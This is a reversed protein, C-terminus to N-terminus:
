LHLFGSYGYGPNGAVDYAVADVSYGRAPLNTATYSWTVSNSTGCGTCTAEQYNVYTTNMSDRVWILIRGVKRSDSAHGTITVAEGPLYIHPIPGFTNAPSDVFSTPAVADVEFTRAPSLSSPNGNVTADAKITHFGANFSQSFTWTGSPASVTRLLVAGEYVRVTAGAAASGSVTASYPQLSNEAPSVIGPPLVLSPTWSGENSLAGNGLANLGRVQYRYQTGNSVATDQYTSAASGLSAVVSKSGTGVGKLVEYGLLISGNAGAPTWSLDVHGDGGTVSLSPATPPGAPLATALPSKTGEGVENSASVRYSYNTGNTVATDNYNTVNGLAVLLSESGVGVTRYLKYALISSGNGNAAAWLLGVQGNGATATLTAPADPLAAPTARAEGTLPGEGVANMASVKYFYTTGNTLGGDVYTAVDGVSDHLAEGESSLGRYINYGTIAEGNGAAATWDLQAQTNGSAVNFDGPAGPLTAPTGSAENSPLGEGHFNVATVTYYYTTGNTLGTDAFTAVDGLTTLLTESGSTTGRYVKYNIIGAEAQATWNLTNSEDGRTVTLDAPADPVSTSALLRPGATQLAITNLADTSGAKTGGPSDCSNLTTCGDPYSVMVRGETDIDADMFDLLNRCANDGGGLWICGRQVPNSTLTAQETTWTAGGDLTTAIYLNFTGNFGAAQDNGGTTSGLFAFAARDDDGAVVAPFQINQITAGNWSPATGVDVPNSWTIATGSRTGTAIKARSGVANDAGDQFGYYIKGGSGIGISPDGEFQSTSRPVYFQTWSSGNDISLAGGQVFDANSNDETEGFYCARIPVYATGDNPAVKVHGASATCHSLPANPDDFAVVGGQASYPIGPGFTAAGDTSLACAGEAVAQACYYIANPYTNAPTAVATSYRGGGVSQHDPATGAGCGFTTSQWSGAASGNGGENDSRDMISCAGTLQSTIIRNSNPTNGHDVFMMPDLTTRGGQAQPPPSVDLWTSSGYVGTGVFNTVKYTYLSGQYIISGTAFNSGITPEGGTAAHNGFSFTQEPYHSPTIATAGAPAAFNTFKPTNSPATPTASAEASQTGEGASNVASVKYFYTTGNSVTVDTFSTAGLNTLLGYSGAGAKRYVNYSTIPHGNSAPATWSVGVEGTGATATLGTPAAPVGTVTANAEGSSPGEGGANTASVKYYYTTGATLGTDITNTATTTGVPSAGQGNSSTGRYISYGTIPSGNDSPATWSLSVQGDGATATLGTPAAPPQPGADGNVNIVQTASLVGNLYLRATITHAGTTLGSVSGSWTYTPSTGSLTANTESGSDVQLKVAATQGTAVPKLLWGPAFQPAANVDAGPGGPAVDQIGGVFSAIYTNHAISNPGVPYGFTALGCDISAGGCAATNIRTFPVFVKISNTPVDVVTSTAIAQNNTANYTANPAATPPSGAAMTFNTWKARGNVNKVIRFSPSPPVDTVDRVTVTFEVGAATEVSSLGVLDLAGSGAYDGGDGTIQTFNSSVAGSSDTASGSVVVTSPVTDGNSHSTIAVSPTGGGGIGAKNMGLSEAASQLDVLGHGKDRSTTSTSSTDTSSVYPGATAFKYASSELVSEVQAPTLSPNAQRIIAVAGATHPTAMSTGSLVAYRPQYAASPGTDCIAKGHTCTSTILTGPASVDPWTSQSATAAGRSSSSSLINDRNGSEADDYNAVAIVGPTPNKSYSSMHDATGTGGSNGAAFLVVIGKENVMKNVLKNLPDNANYATGGADGWSNTVVKIPPNQPNNIIWDFADAPYLISDGEGTGFGYLWAGPAAGKFTGNSATGDGAVIGAVHTGHGSTSDSDSVPQFEAPGGFCLGSGTNILGPTSCVVKWNGKMRGALDPHTGDVGSDVVAVGVDNGDLINGSGDYYPGGSIAQQVVNARTAWKATELNFHIKRNELLYNISSEYSLSKFQGVTGVAFYSDISDDWDRTITLGRGEILARHAAKTGSGFSIFGGYLHGAPLSAMDKAFGASMPVKNVRSSAAGAIMTSSMSIVVAVAVAALSRAKM